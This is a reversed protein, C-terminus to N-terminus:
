STWRISTKERICRSSGAESSTLASMLSMCSMIARVSPSVISTL